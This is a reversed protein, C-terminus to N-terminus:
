GVSPDCIAVNVIWTQMQIAAPRGWSPMLVEARIHPRGWNPPTRLDPNYGVDEWLSTLTRGKAGPGSWQKKLSFKLKKDLISGGLTGLAEKWMQLTFIGVERNMKDGSRLLAGTGWRM